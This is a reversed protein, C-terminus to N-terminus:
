RQEEKIEISYKLDYHNFFRNVALEQIERCNRKTKEDHGRLEVQSGRNILLNANM